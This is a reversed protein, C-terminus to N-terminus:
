FLLRSAQGVNHISIAVSEEFAIVSPHIGMKMPIVCILTYPIVFFIPFLRARNM